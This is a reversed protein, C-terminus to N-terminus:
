EREEDEEEARLMEHLLALDKERRERSLAEAIRDEAEDEEESNSADSDDSDDGDDSDDRERVRATSALFGVVRSWVAHDGDMELLAAPSVGNRTCRGLLAWTQARAARFAMTSNVRANLSLATNVDAYAPLGVRVASYRMAIADCLTFAGGLGVRTVATNLFSVRENLLLMGALAVAGADGVQTGSLDLSELSLSEAACRALETAGVDGVANYALVLRRLTQSRAMGEALACAGGDDISAYRLYLHQLAPSEALAEAMATAGASEVSSRDLNLKALSPHARVAGAVAVVAATSLPTYSLDLTQLERCRKLAEALRVGNDHDIPPRSFGHVGVHVIHDSCLLAVVADVASAMSSAHDHDYVDVRKMSRCRAAADCVRPLITKGDRDLNLHLERLYAHGAIADALSQLESESSTLVYSLRLEELTALSTRMARALWRHAGRLHEDHDVGVFFNGFLELGVLKATRPITGLMVRFSLATRAEITLRTCGGRVAAAVDDADHCRRWESM